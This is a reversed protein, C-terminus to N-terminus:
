LELVLNVVLNSHFNLGIFSTGRPTQIPTKLPPHKTPLPMLKEIVIPRPKHHHGLEGSSRPPHLNFQLQTHPAHQQQDHDHKLRHKHSHTPTSHHAPQQVSPM